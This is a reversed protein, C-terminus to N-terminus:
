ISRRDLEALQAGQDQIVSQTPYEFLGDILTHQSHLYVTSVLIQTRVGLSVSVVSTVTM